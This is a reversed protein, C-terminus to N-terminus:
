HSKNSMEELLNAKTNVAIGHALISVIDENIEDEKPLKDEHDYVQDALWANVVRM